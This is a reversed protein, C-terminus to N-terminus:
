MPHIQSCQMYQSVLHLQDLLTHIALPALMVGSQWYLVVFHGAAGAVTLTRM